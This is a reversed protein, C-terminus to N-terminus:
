GGKVVFLGKQKELVRAEKYMTDREEMEEDKMAWSISIGGKM